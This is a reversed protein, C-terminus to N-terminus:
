LGLQQAVYAATVKTGDVEVVAEGKRPPELKDSLREFDRGKMNGLVRTTQQHAQQTARQKSLEKSARVWVIVVEAQHESALTRMHERDRFYNFNTDFIVDNGAALLEGVLQNMHDYLALNESTNYNPKGYRERRIKDAWLHTAGTLEHIVQATTTKGAGPYGLM